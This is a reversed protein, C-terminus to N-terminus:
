LKKAARVEEPDRIIRNPRVPHGSIPPVIYELGCALLARARLDGVSCYRSLHLVLPDHWSAPAPLRESAIVLLAVTLIASDAYLEATKPIALAM